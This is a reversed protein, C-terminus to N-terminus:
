LILVHTKLMLKRSVMAIPHELIIQILSRTLDKAPPLWEAIALHSIAIDAASKSSAELPACDKRGGM